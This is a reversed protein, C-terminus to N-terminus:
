IRGGAEDREQELFRPDRKVLRDYFNLTAFYNVAGAVVLYYSGLEYYPDKPVGGLLPWGLQHAVLSALNPLGGGLQVLFTLNNILNFDMAQPSWSPWAVGGHLSWGLAVTVLVMTGQLLGRGRRGVACFGAGPLLYNLLVLWGSAPPMAPTPPPPSAANRTNM